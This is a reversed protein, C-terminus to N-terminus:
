CNFNKDGNEDIIYRRQRDSKENKNTTKHSPKNKDFRAGPRPKNDRTDTKVHLKEKELDRTPGYFRRYRKNIAADSQQTKRFDDLIENKDACNLCIWEADIRPHRHAFREVDPQVCECVECFNRREQHAEVKTKLKKPKQARENETKATKFGAKLLADKLSM